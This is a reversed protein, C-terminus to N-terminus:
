FIWEKDCLCERLGMMAKSNGENSRTITLLQLFSQDGRIANIQVTPFVKLNKSQISSYALWIISTFMTNTGYNKNVNM